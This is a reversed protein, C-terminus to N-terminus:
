FTGISANMEKLAKEFKLRVYGNNERQVLGQIAGVMSEDPSAVLMDVAQMRIAPFDEQQLVQMLVRRVEADHGMTKIGEMAKLRVGANPDHAVANLLADRVGAAGPHENFFDVAEVRVAPNDERSAAMLLRQINQDDVPGSIIRRRTEDFSIKVNGSSDPLVSRVTAFVEGAATSDTQPLAAPNYGTFRAAFFGVAVLALAGMPQRWRSLGHFMGGAMELLSTRVSKKPAPDSAPVEREIAAMLNNRCENLLGAPIEVDRRDLAAALLRQSEMERACVACVRLHDEVREEEEASLEGYFYPPILKSIAECSM